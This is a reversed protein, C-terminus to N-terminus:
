PAAGDLRVRGQAATEGDQRYEFTLSRRDADHHLHLELGAGPGIVRRFKVQFDGAARCGTGLLEDGLALAWHTQLVGPLVPRGPFHGAFAPHDAPLDLLVLASGPAPRSVARVPPPATM